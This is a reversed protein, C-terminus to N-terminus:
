VKYVDDSIINLGRATYFSPRGINMQTGEYLYDVEFQLNDSRLEDTYWKINEIGIHLEKDNMDELEEAVKDRAETLSNIESNMSKAKMKGLMDVAFKVVKMATSVMSQWGSTVSSFVIEKVVTGIVGVNVSAGIAANASALEATSMLAAATRVTTENAGQKVAERVFAETAFKRSLNSMMGAIGTITSIISAVKVWRGMYSAAGGQGHKAFYVQLLTLTLAAIGTAIAIVTLYASIPAGAGATVVAIVIAIVILVPGLLKQWWKAKKQTYGTDLASLLIKVRDKTKLSKDNLFSVRLQGKYWAFDTKDNRSKIWISENSVTENVDSELFQQLATRNAENSEDVIHTILSSSALVNSVRKSKLKIVISAKYRTNKSITNEAYPVAVVAADVLSTNFHEGNDFLIYSGVVNTLLTDGIAYNELQNYSADYDNTIYNYIDTKTFGKFYNYDENSSFTLTFSLEEGISCYSNIKSAIVDEINDQSLTDAKSSNLWFYYSTVGEFKASNIQAQANILKLFRQVSQSSTNPYVVFRSKLVEIGDVYETGWLKIFKNKFRTTALFEGKFTEFFDIYSKAM